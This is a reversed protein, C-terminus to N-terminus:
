PERIRFYEGYQGRIDEIDRFQPSNPNRPYEPHEKSFGFYQLYGGTKLIRRAELVSRGQTEKGYIHTCGTDLIDDFL